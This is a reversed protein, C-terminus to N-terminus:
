FMGQELERQGQPGKYDQEGVGELKDQLTHDKEQPQATKTDRVVYEICHCSGLEQAM